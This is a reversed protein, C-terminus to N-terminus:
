DLSASGDERGPVAILVVGEADSAAAAAGHRARWAAEVEAVLAAQVAGVAWAEGVGAAGGLLELRAFATVALPSTPWAEIFARYAAVAEDGAPRRARLLTWAELDAGALVAAANVARAAELGPVEAPAALAPGGVLLGWVCGVALAARCAARVSGRPLLSAGRPRAAARSAVVHLV